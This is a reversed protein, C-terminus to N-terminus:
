IGSVKKFFPKKKEKAPPTTVTKALKANTITTSDNDDGAQNEMGNQDM